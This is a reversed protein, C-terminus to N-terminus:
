PRRRAARSHLDPGSGPRRALAADAGVGGTLDLVAQVAEDGRAEIIDPAGFERAVAATDGERIGAVAAAHHGVDSLALM